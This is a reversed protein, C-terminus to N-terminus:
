PPPLRGSIVPVQWVGYGDPRRIADLMGEFHALIEDYTLETKESIARAYGDRWAVWIDAFINRPVRITDLIVYDVRIDGLGAHTLVTFMKRGSRLDTGTSAAFAIPGDHWFRDTDGPTPHFHMMAYDEAVLHIVGGPKTVRILEAVVRTPDPVAQLVHRCVALDFCDDGAPLEFADGVAFRARPGLEACRMSARAVHAPDIDIGFLTAEDFLEGLRATIEGPGCGVDIIAADRPLAYREILGREQPWIADAQAILTRLMSEHSMQAAQPNTNPM